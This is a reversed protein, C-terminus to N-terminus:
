KKDKFKCFDQRLGWKSGQLELTEESAKSIRMKKQIKKSIM